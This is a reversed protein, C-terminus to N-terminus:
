VPRPASHSFFPLHQCLQQANALASPLFRVKAIRKKKPKPGGMDERQTKKLGIKLKPLPAHAAPAVLPVHLPQPITQAMHVQPLPMCSQM